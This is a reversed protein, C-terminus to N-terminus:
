ETACIDREVILQPHKYLLMNRINSVSVLCVNCNRVAEAASKM